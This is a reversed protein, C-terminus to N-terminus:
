SGPEKPDMSCLVNFEDTLIANISNLAALRAKENHEQPSMEPYKGQANFEFYPQTKEAAAKVIALLIAFAGKNEESGGEGRM